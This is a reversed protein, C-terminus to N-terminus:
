LNKDHTYEKNAKSIFKKLFEYLPKFKELTSLNYIDYRTRSKYIGFETNWLGYHLTLLCYGYKKTKVSCEVARESCYYYIVSATSIHKYIKELLEEDDIENTNWFLSSNFGKPLDNYSHVRIFWPQSIKNILHKFFRLIKNM